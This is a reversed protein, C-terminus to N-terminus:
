RAHTTGRAHDSTPIDLVRYGVVNVVRTGDLTRDPVAEGHPHIHGHVLLKPRLRRVTDHLCVFGRHPADERDGVGRPPSHTLLVDVGHLGRFRQWAVTRALRRARRAQQQETWQNVGDNYRISGGLGAIVLGARETLRGDVNSGGAPGPWRAPFGGRLWLGRVRTYGGLDPDHNGPVFVCPKDLTNSLHELYDFPLDGAGLILDVDHRRVQETWLHEVVEDAVALVRAM